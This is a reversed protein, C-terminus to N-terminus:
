HSTASLKKARSCALLDKESKRVWEAFGPDLDTNSKSKSIKEGKRALVFGCIMLDKWPIDGTHYLSRVITYFTWTRIIEHAHTRMSM